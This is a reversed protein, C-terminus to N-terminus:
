LEDPHDRKFQLFKLYQQLEVLEDYSLKNLQEFIEDKYTEIPVIKKPPEEKDKPEPHFDLLYDLTVGFFRAIKLLTMSSPERDDNEYNRYTNVKLELADAVEQQTLDRATRLNLLRDEFM